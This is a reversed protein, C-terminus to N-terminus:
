TKMHGSSLRLWCMHMRSSLVAFHCEDAGPIIFALNSIVYREDVFVLPVYPRREYTIM